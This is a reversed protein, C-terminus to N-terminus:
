RSRCPTWRSRMARNGHRVTLPPFDRLQADWQRLRDEILGHLRRRDVGQLGFPEHERAFGSVALRGDPTGTLELGFQPAADEDPRSQMYDVGVPAMFRSFDLPKRHRIHDEIFTEIEPYTAAVFEDFFTENDFPRDKGYRNMMEVFVDRLGRKGDSLELLRLDLCM